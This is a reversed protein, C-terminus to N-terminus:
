RLTHTSPLNVMFLYDDSGTLDNWTVDIYYAQGNLYVRNWRHNEGNAFGRVSDCPIDLYDCAAEFLMAYHICMGYGNKVILYTDFNESYKYYANACIWNNLRIIAEKHSMGNVIGAQSFVTLLLREPDEERVNLVSYTVETVKDGAFSKTPAYIGSSYDALVTSNFKSLFDKESQRTPFSTKFTIERQGSTDCLFSYLKQALDAYEGFDYNSPNYYQKSKIYVTGGNGVSSSSAVSTTKTTGSNKTTSVTKTTSNATNSAIKSSGSKNNSSKTTSNDKSAEKDVNVSGVEEKLELEIEGKALKSAYEDNQKSAIVPYGFNRVGILNSKGINSRYVLMAIILVVLMVFIPIITVKGSKKANSKLANKKNKM